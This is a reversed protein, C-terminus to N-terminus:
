TGRVTYETPKGNCKNIAHLYEWWIDNTSSTAEVFYRRLVGVAVNPAM